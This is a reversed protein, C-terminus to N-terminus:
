SGITRLALWFAIDTLTHVDEAVEVMFDSMEEPSVLAIEIGHRDLFTLGSVWATRKNGDLFGHAQSVGHLLAAAQSYISPYLLVGGFSAQPRMAAGELKGRDIVPANSLQDHIAVIEDVTLFEIV